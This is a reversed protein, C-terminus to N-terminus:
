ASDSTVRVIMAAEDLHGRDVAQQHLVMAWDAVLAPVWSPFTIRDRM